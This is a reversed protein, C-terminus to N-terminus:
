MIIEYFHLDNKFVVLTHAPLLPPYKNNSHLANYIHFTKYKPSIAFALNPHRFVSLNKMTNTHHNHWGCNKDFMIIMKEKCICLAGIYIGPMTLVGSDQFLKM